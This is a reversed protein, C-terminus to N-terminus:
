GVGGGGDGDVPSGGSAADEAEAEAFATAIDLLINYTAKWRVTSTEPVRRDGEGGFQCPACLRERAALRKPPKKTQLIADAVTRTVSQSIWHGCALRERIYPLAGRPVVLQREYVYKFSV